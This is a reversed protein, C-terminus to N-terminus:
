TKGESEWKKRSVAVSYVFGGAFVLAATGLVVWPLWPNDAILTSFSDEDDADAGLFGAAFGTFGMTSAIVAVRAATNKIYGTFNCLGLAALMLVLGYFAVGGGAGLAGLTLILSMVAILVAGLVLSFLNAAIVARRFHEASGPVSVYYKHGPTAPNAYTYLTSLFILGTLPVAGTLMVSMGDTMGAMFDGGTALVELVAIMLIIVAMTVLFSAMSTLSCRGFFIRFSNVYKKM